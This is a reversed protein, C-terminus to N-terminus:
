TDPLSSAPIGPTCARAQAKIYACIGHIYIIISWFLLNDRLNKTIYYKRILCNTSGPESGCCLSFEDMYDVTPLLKVETSSESIYFTKNIGDIPGLAYLKKLSYTGATSGWKGWLLPHIIASTIPDPPFVFTIINNEINYDYGRAMIDNTMKPKTTHDEPLLPTLAWFIAAGVMFAEILNPLNTLRGFPTIHKFKLFLLLILFGRTVIIFTCGVIVCPVGIIAISNLLAGLTSKQESM